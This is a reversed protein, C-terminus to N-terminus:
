ARCRSLFDAFMKKEAASLTVAATFGTTFLSLMDTKALANLRKDSKAMRITLDWGKAPNAVATAPMFDPDGKGTFLAMLAAGEPMTSGPADGVKTGGGRIDLLDTVGTETIVVADPACEFIYSHTDDIALALQEGHGGAAGVAKWEGAWSPSASVLIAAATLVSVRM